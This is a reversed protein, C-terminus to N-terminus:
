IVLGECVKGRDVKESTKETEGSSEFECKMDIEKGEGRDEEGLKKESADNLM